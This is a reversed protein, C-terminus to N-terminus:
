LWNWVVIADEGNSFFNPSTGVEIWGIEKLFLLQPVNSVRVEGTFWSAGRNKAARDATRQVLAALGQRRYGPHSGMSITHAAPGFMQFGIYAVVKRGDRIVIYYTIPLLWYRILKFLTLPEPFFATELRIIQRLDSIKMWDIYFAGKQGPFGDKERSVKKKLM